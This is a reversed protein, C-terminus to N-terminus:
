FVFLTYLGITRIHRLHLCEHAGGCLQGSAEDAAISRGPGTLRLLSGSLLYVLHFSLFCFLAETNSLVVATRASLETCYWFM